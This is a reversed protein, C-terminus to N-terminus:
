LRGAYIQILYTCLSRYDTSVKIWYNIHEQLLDTEKWGNEKGTMNVLMNSLILESKFCRSRKLYVIFISITSIYCVSTAKAM